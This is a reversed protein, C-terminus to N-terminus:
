LYVWPHRNILITVWKQEGILSPQTIVRRLQDQCKAYALHWIGFALHRVTPTEVLNWPKM